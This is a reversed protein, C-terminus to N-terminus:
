MTRVPMCRDISPGPMVATIKSNIRWVNIELDALRQRLVELEKSETKITTTTKSSTTPASFSISKLSVIIHAMKEEHGEMSVYGEREVEHDDDLADIVDVHYRKFEADLM